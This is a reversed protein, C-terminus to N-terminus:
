LWLPSPSIYVYVTYTQCHHQSNLFFPLCLSVLYCATTVSGVLTGKYKACHVYNTERKMRQGRLHHDTHGRHKVGVNIACVCMLTGPFVGM